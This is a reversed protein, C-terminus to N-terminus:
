LRLLPGGCLPWGRLPAWVGCAWLGQECQLTLGCMNLNVKQVIQQKQRISPQRNLTTQVPNNTCPKQFVTTPIRNNSYYYYQTSTTRYLYIQPVGIQSADQEGKM